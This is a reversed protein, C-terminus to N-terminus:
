PKPNLTSNPGSCIQKRERILFGSFTSLSVPVVLSYTSVAKRGYDWSASVFCIEGSGQVRIGLEEVRIGM